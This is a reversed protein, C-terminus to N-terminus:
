DGDAKTIWKIYWFVAMGLVASVALSLVRLGLFEDIWALSYSFSRANEVFEKVPAYLALFIGVPAFVLVAQSLARSHKSVHESDRDDLFAAVAEIDKQTREQLEGTRLHKRMFVYMESPQIQGSLEPAMYTSTFFLYDRHVRQYAARFEKQELADGDTLEDTYAICVKAIRERFVLMAARQCVALLTLYFYHRQFHHFFTTVFFSDEKHRGAVSDGKSQGVATFAYNCFTYRTNRWDGKVGQWFRDYCHDREFNALFKDAYPYKRDDGKPEVLAIRTWDSASINSPDDVAMYSMIFMRDDGLQTFRIPAPPADTKQAFCRKLWGSNPGPTSQVKDLTTLPSVLWGWHPAVPSQRHHCAFDMYRTFHEDTCDGIQHGSHSKWYARGPFEGPMSHKGGKEEVIFPPYIRRAIERYLLAEGLTMHNSAALEVAMIAVTGGFLYLDVRAAKFDHSPSAHETGTDTDDENRKAKLHLYGVDSRRFRLVPADKETSHFLHQVFPHFYVFESYRHADWREEASDFGLPDLGPEIQVWSGKGDLTLYKSVDDPSPPKSIKGVGITQLYIPWFLVMRFQEVVIADTPRADPARFTSLKDDDSTNPTM